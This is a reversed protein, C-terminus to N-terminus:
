LASLFSIKRPLAPLVHGCYASIQVAYLRSSSMELWQAFHLSSPKLYLEDVVRGRGAHVGEFYGHLVIHFM